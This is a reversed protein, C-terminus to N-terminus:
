ADASASKLPENKEAEKRAAESETEKRAEQSSEYNPEKATERIIREADDASVFFRDKLMESIEADSRGHEKMIRVSHRMTSKKLDTRVNKIRLKEVPDDSLGHIEMLERHIHNRLRTASHIM